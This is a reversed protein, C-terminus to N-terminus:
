SKFLQYASLRKSVIIENNKETFYNERTVLINDRKEDKAKPSFTVELRPITFIIKGKVDKSEMKEVFFLSQKTISYNLKNISIIIKRVMIQSVKNPTLECIFHTANSQILKSNFGKLYNKLSLPFEDMEGLQKEIVLAKQDHNIKFGYNKFTVFETNKIKFYNINNKRLIVGSYQEYIKKTSYDLYLAYKTTYSLYEQKNNIEIAKKLIQLATM